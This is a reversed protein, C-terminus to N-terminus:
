AEALSRVHLSENATFPGIQYEGVTVVAINEGAANFIELSYGPEQGPRGPLFQVLKAM